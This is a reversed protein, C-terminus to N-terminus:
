VFYKLFSTLDTDEFISQLIDYSTTGMQYQTLKKKKHQLKDIETITDYLQASRPMYLGTLVIEEQRAPSHRYQLGPAVIDGFLVTCGSCREVLCYQLYKLYM